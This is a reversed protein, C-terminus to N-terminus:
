INCKPCVVYDIHTTKDINLRQYLTEHSIPIGNAVNTASTCGFAKGLLLIFYKFAKLFVTIAANSVNFAAQWLLVFGLFQFITNQVTQIM